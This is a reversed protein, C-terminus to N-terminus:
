TIWPILEGEQLSKQIDIVHQNRGGCYPLTIDRLSDIYRGDLNGVGM